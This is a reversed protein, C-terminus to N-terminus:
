TLARIDQAGIRLGQILAINSAECTPARAHNKGRRIVGSDRPFPEAGFIISATIATMDGLLHIGLMPSNRLAV